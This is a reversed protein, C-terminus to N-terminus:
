PECLREVVGPSAGMTGFVVDSIHEHDPAFVIVFSLAFDRKVAGPVGLARLTRNQRQVPEVGVLQDNQANENFLRVEWKDHEAFRERLYTEIAARGDVFVVEGTRYNCDSLHPAEDLFAMVDALKGANYAAFFAEVRAVLHAQGLPLRYTGDQVTPARGATSPQSTSQLTTTPAVPALSPRPQADSLATGLAIGSIFAVVAVVAGVLLTRPILPLGRGSVFPQVPRRQPPEDDDSFGMQTTAGRADM